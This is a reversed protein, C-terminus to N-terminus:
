CVQSNIDISMDFDDVTLEPREKERGVFNNVMGIRKKLITHRYGDLEEHHMAKWRRWCQNDTRPALMQAVQSWKGLGYIQVAEDLKKNEQM